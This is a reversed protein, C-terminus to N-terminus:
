AHVNSDIVGHWRSGSISFSVMSIEFIGRSDQQGIANSKKQWTFFRMPARCTSSTELLQRMSGTVHSCM